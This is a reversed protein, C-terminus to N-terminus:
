LGYYDPDFTVSSQGVGNVPPDLKTLKIALKEIVPFRDSLERHLAITTEELLKRPISLFARSSDVLLAYDVSQDLDKPNGPSIQMSLDLRFWQGVMREEEYWGLPLFLRIDNVSLRLPQAVKL